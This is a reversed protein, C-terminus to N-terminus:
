ASGNNANTIKKPLYSRSALIRPVMSTVDPSRPITSPISIGIFLKTGSISIFSMRNDIM